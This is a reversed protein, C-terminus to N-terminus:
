RVENNELVNVKLLLHPVLSALQLKFAYVSFLFHVCHSSIQEYRHKDFYVYLHLQEKKRWSPMHPLPPIVGSM